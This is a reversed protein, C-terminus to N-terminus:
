GSWLPKKLFSDTHVQWPCLHFCPETEHPQRRPSAPSRGRASHCRGKQPVQYAAAPVPLKSYKPICTFINTCQRRWLVRLASKKRGLDPPHATYPSIVVHTPRHGFFSGIWIQTQNCFQLFLAATPAAKTEPYSSLGRDLFFTKTDRHTHTHAHTHTQTHGWDHGVRQLRMSQLRGPEETWPIKWALVSSHTAM